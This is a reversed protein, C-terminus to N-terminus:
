AELGIEELFNKKAKADLVRSQGPKLKGLHIGMIRVRLLREVTLHMEALMRRIEHKKGETLVINVTHPNILTVKKAVLKEGESMVGGELTAKIFPLAKERVSVIYEKEHQHRPHLLRDTVRGDDTLLILGESSKDLRGLPYLHAFGSIDQISKQGEEPASTVIGRPKYYAVYSFEGRAQKGSEFIEVMDDESMLRDGLVAKKGNLHVKGSKILDDAKRRTTVGKLALYRNLRM